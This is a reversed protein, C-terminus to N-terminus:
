LELWGTVVYKDGSLPPNGRHTHTFGAPWLLLRGEVPKIRRGQYLFETEGGEEVTNLYLMFVLNRNCAEVNATEYHWIHYGSRPKTMQVRLSYIKYESSTTLISYKNAYLAHCVSWFLKDFEECAFNWQEDTYFSGYPIGVTHDERRHFEFNKRSTSQGADHLKRFHNIWRNCYASSFLGDFVGIFDDGIEYKLNPFGSKIRDILEDTM